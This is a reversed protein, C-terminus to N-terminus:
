WDFCSCGLTDCRQACAALSDNTAATFNDVGSATDCYSHAHATLAAAAAAAAAAAPNAGAATAILPAPLIKTSAINRRQALAARQSASLPSRAGSCNSPKSPVNM